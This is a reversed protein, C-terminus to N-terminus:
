RAEGFRWTLGVWVGRPAGVSRFQENRWTAGTADFTEGAGTFVNQGLAGFSSYRRDLLNSVRAFLEWGAAARWRADFEFVAFGPVPGNVDRNNEDGRAYAPGQAVMALGLSAAAAVDWDLGLKLTQLPIGPIHDGPLVRIDACSACSLPAAASNSPSNLILPSEFTANVLSYHLNLRLRALGGDLRLELGQRRTKGVNRFYGASTAGGGSSIFQIDDSLTTRFVAASWGFAAGARGRGGLELTRSVVPALAPDSAFANPLSCPASPDACTLEVPTPVRMGEDYAGYLTLARAPNWTLGLAPNLRHFAHEGDLATGLQDALAVRDHDYRASITLFTKADIGLSDSLYAGSATSSSRLSTALVAPASSDTGRSAGAEQNLQSFKTRGGDVALGVVFQNVHGILPRGLSLQLSAGPRDQDIQNIANGTPPNGPGIPAATDFNANVNSNVVHTRLKRWYAGGEILWGGDLRRDAKLDVFGLRNTQLDPYTYARAPDALFSLPLTQNGGLRTDALTLNVSAHTGAGRYGFSGFLQQVRSPDAQAWGSEHVSNGAVFWGLAQARGGSAFEVARRGFSGIEFKVSTGPGDFGSRTSVNVAGGLTNLGFVPDSGPVVTIAAIAVNPILDWHVTDGFAENVRVGDVFVSLGQPTGLDPSATFGRFSVDPQFPNGTTDNISVSGAAHLLADAPSLAGRSGVDTPRLVQVNAPVRDLPMGLGSLPTTSIVVTQQAAAATDADAADAARAPAVFLLLSSSLAGLGIRGRRCPGLSQM